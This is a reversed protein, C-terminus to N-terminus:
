QMCNEIAYKAMEFKVLFLVLFKRMCVRALYIECRLILAKSTHSLKL